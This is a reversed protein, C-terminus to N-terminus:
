WHDRNRRTAASDQEGDQRTYDGDMRLGKLHTHAKRLSFLHLQSKIQAHVVRVHHRVQWVWEPRKKPKYYVLSLACHVGLSM